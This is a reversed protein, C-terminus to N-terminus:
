RLRPLAASRREGAGQHPRTRPARQGPLARQHAPQRVPQLHVSVPPGPGHGPSHAASLGPRPFVSRGAGERGPGSGCVSGPPYRQHRPPLAIGGGAGGARATAGAGGPRLRRDAGPAPARGGVTRAGRRRGAAQARWDTEHLIRGPQRCARGPLLGARAAAGPRGSGRAAGAPQLRALDVGPQSVVATSRPQHRAAFRGTPCHARAHRDQLSSFAFSPQGGM